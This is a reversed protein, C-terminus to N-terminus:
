CRPEDESRRASDDTQISREEPASRAAAEPVIPFRVSVVGQDLSSTVPFGSNRFVKMMGTNDVLTDAIFTTIGNRLAAAALQKLLLAGIGRRQYQDAVLFAIEADDTDPLRDYRGVAVLQDGDLAILALRNSYDVNTFHEVEEPSLHPHASFYRRYVTTLSLHQHADILREADDPRIPRVHLRTGGGLDVDLALDAPYDGVAARGSSLTGDQEAEAELDPLDSM